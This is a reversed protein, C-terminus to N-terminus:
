AMRVGYPGNDDDNMARHTGDFPVNLAGPIDARLVVDDDCKLSM